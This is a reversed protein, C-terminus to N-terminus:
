PFHFMGLIDTEEATMSTEQQDTMFDHRRIWLGYCIVDERIELVVTLVTVVTM